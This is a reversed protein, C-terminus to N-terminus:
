IEPAMFTYLTFGGTMQLVTVAFIMPLVPDRAVVAWTGLSVPPVRLGGPVATAVLVLAACCGVAVVWFAAAWGAQAGVWSTLPVAAAAAISWGAFVFAIASARKEPPM